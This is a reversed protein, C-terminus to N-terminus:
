PDPPFEPEIRSAPQSKDFPLFIVIPENDPRYNYDCTSANVFLTKGNSTVGYGEHIHGFIHVRPPRAVVVDLLDACGCRIGDATLDGHGLPPGHTMLIDLNSPINSWIQQLQTGREANFAWDCFEPQWPSGYISIEENNIFINKQEDELYIVGETEDKIIDRCENVINELNNNNNDNRNQHYHFRKAGRTIYYEKDLTIDHNGAILLKYQYNRQNYWEKFKIIENKKGTSTFDGCHILIDGIPLKLRSHKSHTDSICILKIGEM